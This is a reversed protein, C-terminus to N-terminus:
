PRNRDMLDNVLGAAAMLDLGPHLERLAKTAAIRNDTSEVAAQVDGVPIESTAPAPKTFWRGLHRRRAIAAGGISLIAVLWVCFFGWNWGSSDTVVRSVVSVGVAILVISLILPEWRGLRQYWTISKM